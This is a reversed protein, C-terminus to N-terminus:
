YQHLGDFDAKGINLGSNRLGAYAQSFHFLMNPYAFIVIYDATHQKLQIDGAVHEVESDWNIDPASNIADCVEQYLVQLTPLSCPEAIEPM